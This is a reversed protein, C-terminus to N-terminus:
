YERRRKWLSWVGLLSEKIEKFGVSSEGYIRNVFHIPIEVIKFNNKTLEMAQESLYIFGSHNIPASLICQIAIKSYRRLGNTLDKCPVGLIRPIITNLFKSAIKRSMPWGDIRSLALYRSGILFDCQPYNLLKIIDEARHSGDSDCEILYEINQCNELVFMFGRRIASGRGSKVSAFSIYFKINKNYLAAKVHMKVKDQHTIGSDDCVLILTNSSVLDGINRLLIELNEFENYAAFVICNKIYNFENNSTM